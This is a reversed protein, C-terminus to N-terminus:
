NKSPKKIYKITDNKYMYEEINTKVYSGNCLEYVNIYKLLPLVAKNYLIANIKTGIFLYGKKEGRNINTSLNYTGDDKEILNVSISKNCFDFLCKITSSNMDAVINQPISDIIFVKKSVLEYAGDKVEKIVTLDDKYKELVEEDDTYFYIDSGVKKSVLNERRDYINRSYLSSENVVEFYGDDLMILSVTKHVNGSNMEKTTMDVFSSYNILKIENSLMEFHVGDKTSFKKIFLPDFKSAEEKSLEVMLSIGKKNNCFKDAYELFNEAYGKFYLIPTVIISGDKYKKVIKLENSYIDIKKDLINNDILDKYLIFYKISTM